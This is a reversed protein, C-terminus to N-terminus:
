TLSPVPKWSLQSSANWPEQGPQDGTKSRWWAGWQVGFQRVAATPDRRYLDIVAAADAGGSSGVAAEDMWARIPTGGWSDDIAGIPVKESGRLEHVMFYCAASFDTVSPDAVLWAPAQAFSTQPNPSLQHAVKMMRLGSDPEAVSPGYGMARPLPYEMNSQGSCLWVDGVMVDDAATTAGGMGSVQIAYPGGAGHAAFDAHWRGGRDAVARATAGSFSVTVREGPAATGSIVIPRDRQIVAHSGYQPDIVPAAAAATSALLSFLILSSRASM